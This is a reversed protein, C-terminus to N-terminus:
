GFAHASLSRGDLLAEVMAPRAPSALLRAVAAFDAGVIFIKPRSTETVASINCM